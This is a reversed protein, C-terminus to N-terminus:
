YKIDRSRHSFKAHVFKTLISAVPVFSAPGTPQFLNQYWIEVPKGFMRKMNEATSLFWDCYM